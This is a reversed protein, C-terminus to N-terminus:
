VFNSGGNSFAYKNNRGNWFSPRWKNRPITRFEVPNFANGKGVVVTHPPPEESFYHTNYTHEFYPIQLEKNQDYNRRNYGSIAPYNNNNFDQLLHVFVINNGHYMGISYM